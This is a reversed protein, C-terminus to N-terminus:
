HRSDIFDYAERQQSLSDGEESRVVIQDTRRIVKDSYDFPKLEKLETTRDHLQNTSMSSKRYYRANSGYSSSYSGKPKIGLAKDVWTKLLPGVIPVCGCFLVTCAEAATWMYQDATNWTTDSGVSTIAFCAILRFISAVCARFM